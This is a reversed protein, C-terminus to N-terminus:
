NPETAQSGLFCNAARKGSADEDDPSNQSLRRLNASYGIRRRPFLEIVYPFIGILPAVQCSVFLM